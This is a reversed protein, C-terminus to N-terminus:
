NEAALFVALAKIEPPTLPTNIYHMSRDNNRAREVLRRIQTELYVPNQGALRPVPGGGTAYVGHCSACDYVGTEPNGEYYLKRGAALLPEDQTATFGPRMRAFYESLLYAERATLAEAVAQMKIHRRQGTKFNFLQKLLYESSQGALSAYENSIGLGDSGHCKTCRKKALAQATANDADSYENTSASTPPAMAMCAAALLVCLRRVRQLPRIQTDWGRAAIIM